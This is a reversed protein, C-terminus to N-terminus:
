GVGGKPCGELSPVANDRVSTVTLELESFTPSTLRQGALFAQGAAYEARGGDEPYLAIFEDLTLPQPAAQVM